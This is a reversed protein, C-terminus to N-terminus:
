GMPLIRCHFMELLSILRDSGDQRNGFVFAQKVCGAIQKRDALTTLYPAYLLIYDYKKRAEKLLPRLNMQRLTEFHRAPWVFLNEISTPAASVHFGAGTEPTELEFVKAAADRNLDLDILLCKGKKALQIALHVPVTVPLESISGAALLTPSCRTQKEITRVLSPIDCHEADIMLEAKNKSGTRKRLGGRKVAWFCVAFLM